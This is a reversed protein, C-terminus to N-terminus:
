RRGGGEGGVVVTSWGRRGGGDAVNENRPAGARQTRIPLEPASVRSPRGSETGRWGRRPAARWAAHATRRASSGGAVSHASHTARERRRSCMRRRAHGSVCQGSVCAHARDCASAEGSVVARVESWWRRGGGDVLGTSWWRRGGGDVKAAAKGVVAAQTHTHTRAHAHARTRTRTHTRTHTHAHPTRTHTHTRQAHAHTCTVHVHTCTNLLIDRHRMRSM